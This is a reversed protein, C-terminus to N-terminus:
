SPFNQLMNYFWDTATDNKLSDISEANTKLNWIAIDQLENDPPCGTYEKNNTIDQYSKITGSKINAIVTNAIGFNNQITVLMKQLDEKSVLFFIGYYGSGILNTTKELTYDNLSVGTEELFEKIAGEVPRSIKPDGGPFAFKGGGKEELSFGDAYIAQGDSFFYGKECKTFKLFNGSQDYVITYVLM